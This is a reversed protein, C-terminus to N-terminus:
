LKPSLCLLYVRVKTMQGGQFKPEGFTQGEKIFNRLLGRQNSLGRFLEFFFGLESYRYNTVNGGNLTFIPKAREVYDWKWLAVCRSKSLCHKM